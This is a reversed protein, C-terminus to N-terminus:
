GRPAELGYSRKPQSIKPQAIYNPVLTAPEGWRIRNQVEAARAANPYTNAAYHPGYGPLDGLESADIYRVDQGPERLFYQERRNPVAVPGSDILDFSDIGGCVLERRYALVKAFTVGVRVGTFSGPGLDAVVGKVDDLDASVMGMVAQILEPLKESANRPAEASKEALVRASGDFLAVSAVPSSTSLSLIM